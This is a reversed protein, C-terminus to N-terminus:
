KPKQTDGGVSDTHTHNKLSVSGAKVDGTVTLNGEITVGKESVSLFVSGATVVVSNEKAAKKSAANGRKLLGPIVVASTLDFRLSGESEAGSRWTDLEVESVIVLCSDGKKLPFAIGTGISQCCPFIVPVETIMPYDLEVGDSTIYKGIPSVTVTCNDSDYSVIKGPLATHIDNAVAKATQEIEATLEQLM